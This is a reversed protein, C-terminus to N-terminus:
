LPLNTVIFDCPHPGIWAKRPSWSVPACLPVATHPCPSPVATWVGLLSAEPSALGALVQGQSEAGLVALSRTHTLAPATTNTVAARTSASVM